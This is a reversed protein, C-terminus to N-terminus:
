KLYSISANLAKSHGDSDSKFWNIRSDSKSFWNMQQKSFRNTRRQITKICDTISTGNKIYSAIEKYGLSSLAPLNLSYGNDLLYNVENVWGEDFMKEVRSDIKSKLISPELELGIIYTNYPFTGKSPVAKISGMALEIARILRRPNNLDIRKYAKKDIASLHRKLTEKGVYQSIETLDKRLKLNPKIEPVIWGEILGWFYQGTGGVIIPVKNRSIIHSIAINAQELFIALNYEQDPYLSDVLHHKINNMTSYSPKSTGIDMHKYIQRSDVSIIEGDIKSALRISLETKGVATPGVIALIKPYRKNAL